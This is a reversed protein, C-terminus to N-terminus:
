LHNIKNFVDNGFIEKRWGYMIKSTLNINKPNTAIAKLDDNTAILSPTLNHTEACVSLLHKLKNFLNIDIKKTIDNHDKNLDQELQKTLSDQILEALEELEETALNALTKQTKLELTTIPKLAALKFLEEEKMFHNRPINKLQAQRERWGALQKILYSIKIHENNKLKKWSNNYDIIINNKTAMQMIDEKAWTYRDESQLLGLIIPYIQYLYEVDLKAYSIQKETLPRKTWDSISLSKDLQINLFHDVLSEYSAANNFGCFGAAIQTDFINNPILNLHIYLNELDQKASHFVKVMNENLLINELLKLNINPNLADIIAVNNKYAIQILCLVPYYTTRRDFETDIAIYDANEVIKLFSILSENNEIYM